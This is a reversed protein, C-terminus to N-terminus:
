ATAHATSKVTTWKEYLRRILHDISVSGSGLSVLVVLISIWFVPAAWMAEPLVFAPITLGMVLLGLAAFRTGFGLVLCIPLVFMAYSVPAAIWSPLNVMETFMAYASHKVAMPLTVSLHFGHMLDLGPVDISYV